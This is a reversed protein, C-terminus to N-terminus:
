DIDYHGYVNTKNTAAGDDCSLFRYLIRELTVDSPISHILISTSGISHIIM